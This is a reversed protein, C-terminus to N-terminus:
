SQDKNRKIKRRLKPMLGSNIDIRNKKTLRITKTDNLYILEKDKDNLEDLLDEYEETSIPELKEKITQRQRIKYEKIKLLNEDIPQNNVLSRCISKLCKIIKHKFYNDDRKTYEKKPTTEKLSDGNRKKIIEQMKPPLYYYAEMIIEESCGYKGIIEFITKNLIAEKATTQTLLEKIRPILTSIIYDIENKKM